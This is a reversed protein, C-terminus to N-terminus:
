AGPRRRQRYGHKERAWESVFEAGFMLILASIYMWFLLAIVSAISGYLLQFNAFHDVYVLFFSRFLEFALSAVMTGPWLYRWYVRTNPGFKYAFLFAFFVLAFGALRSAIAALLPLDELFLSLSTAALSALFMMSTGVSLSMERVKRLVYPREKAIGWARDLFRGVAAFIQTGSWFLGVLALIGLTGWVKVVADINGRILDASAGPTVKRVIDFVRQPVEQPPFFLSLLVIAGLLLPFLSLIAYYAIAAAADGAKDNGMERFVRFMFRIWPVQVLRAVFATGMGVVRDRMRQMRGVTKNRSNPM